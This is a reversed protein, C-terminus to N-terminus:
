ETDEQPPAQHALFADVVSKKDDFAAKAVKARDQTSATKWWSILKSGEPSDPVDITTPYALGLCTPASLKVTSVKLIAPPM